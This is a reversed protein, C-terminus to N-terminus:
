NIRQWVISNCQFGSGLAIQFVKDGKRMRGSLEIFNLEYWISSSSTNGYRYLTARSPEVHHQELKLNQEIGDIIAKGGAHISFPDFAKKLDPVYAPTRKQSKAVVTEYKRKLFNLFFLIQESWPLVMPGLITLNSKLADGAVEMLEKSRALAVGIKGNADEHQYVANYSKDNAGKHVRVLNRLQYKAKWGDRRRNSLLMAAGGMRFLTNSVLMSKDNGTYWNQTINETSIVVALSNKHVQLLDRALDMSVVGASCGMGSLNYVRTSSRMKYKNMVMEALSPTPNFLSCNVVLIDIDVPKVKTKAFLQDLCGTLVEEAEARASAMGMNPPEHLIGDPFYADEGVGTLYLLKEQFSVAEQDFFKSNVTKDMFVKYSVKNKDQPQYTAFDVLYIPRARTLFYVTVTFVLIVAAAVLTLVTVWLGTSSKRMEETLLNIFHLFNPHTREEYTFLYALFAVLGSIYVLYQLRRDSRWTRYGVNVEDLDATRDPYWYKVSPQPTSGAPKEEDKSQKSSSSM